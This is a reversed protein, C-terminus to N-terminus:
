ANCTNVAKNDAKLKFVTCRLYVNGSLQWPPIIFLFSIFCLVHGLSEYSFTRTDFFQRFYLKHFRKLRGCIGNSKVDFIGKLFLFKGMEISLALSIATTAENLCQKGTDLTM